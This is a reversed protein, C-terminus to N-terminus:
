HRPSELVKVAGALDAAADELRLLQENVALSEAPGLAAAGAFSGTGAAEVASDHRWEGGDRHQRSAAVGSVSALTATITSCDTAVPLGSSGSDQLVRAYFSLVVLALDMRWAADLAM